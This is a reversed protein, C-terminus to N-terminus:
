RVQTFASNMVRVGDTAVTVAGDVDTRFIRARIEQFRRLVDPHPFRYVNGRGCSVVAIEPRVAALFEPTSSKKAGHHPVLLVTSKLSKQAAVIREETEEGIDGPMLFSVSGFSARLALSNENMRRYDDNNEYVAGAPNLIDFRVGNISVPSSEESLDRRRIGRNALVRCLERYLPSAAAQGNSWFEGISFNDLLYILGGLHDPHPHSLVVYDIRKIRERLLFPAVVNRGIDFNGDPSGGGDVLMTKGGPLKFIAASGQGVDIATMTLFGNNSTKQHIVIGDGIFFVALCGCLAKLLLRRRKNEGSRGILEVVAFLLLYYAAIEFCSPTTAIWSAGPLSDFFNVIKLSLDVLFSSAAIFPVAAAHSFPAVFIVAMTIPIALIGLIPVVFINAPLVVNSFRNFYFIILPWTGLTASVTALFFLAAHHFTRKLFAVKKAGEEVVTPLFRRQLRPTIFLLAFVAAFSLQFSVDFLSYPAIILILLAALALTNYLDRQRGILIAVMFVATMITARIVSIGMGAIFCFFLVPILALWTSTIIMNFRLLFRESRRLILRLIFFSVAAIIGVNFGSIAIIHSVGTRNFKDLIDRPIEKQNGLIMAQVIERRPTTSHAYIVDKLSSRYDELVRMFRNGAGQRVVAIKAPDSVFGRVHIRRYLLYREYDFAGPNQFNHPKKLNVPFRLVDGYRYPYSGRVSIMVRGEVSTETKRVLDIVSSAALVFDVKGPSFQPSEAIMGELVLRKTDAYHVIHSPALRPHLYLNINLMGILFLSAFVLSHFLFPRKPRVVSFGAAAAVLMASIVIDAPHCYSGAAIGCIMALTPLILPRERM